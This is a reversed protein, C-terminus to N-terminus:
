VAPVLELSTLTSDTPELQAPLPLDVQVLGTTSAATKTCTELETTTTRGMLSIVCPWMFLPLDSVHTGSLGKDSRGLGSTNHEGKNGLIGHEGQHSHGTARDAAAAAIGTGTAGSAGHHGSGTHDGHRRAAEDIETNGSQGFRGHDGVGGLGKCM